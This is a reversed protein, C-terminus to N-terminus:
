DFVINTRIIFIAFSVWMMIEFVKGHWSMSKPPDPRTFDPTIGAALMRDYLHPHTVLSGRYVAPFLNDKYLMMLARAYTGPDAENALVMNDASAENKRSMRVSLYPLALTVIWLLYLGFPGAMNVAPKYFIWPLLWSGPLFRLYVQHWPEKLHALEHACVTALEDDPLIELLRETFVVTRSSIFAYAQAIQQVHMVLVKRFPTQMRAAVDGAIKQLRQPAPGTLRIKELLWLNGSRLYIMWLIVIGAGFGFAPLGFNEPMLLIAGILAAWGLIRIMCIIFASRLAKGWPTRAHVELDSPVTGFTAGLMSGIGVYVWLLSHMRFTLMTMTFIAPITFLNMKAAVTAPALL